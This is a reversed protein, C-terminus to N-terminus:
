VLWGEPPVEGRLGVEVLTALARGADEKKILFDVDHGCVAGGRAYVAFGGALAFPVDAQGLHFAVRKLTDMLPLAPM